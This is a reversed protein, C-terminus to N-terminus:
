RMMKELYKLKLPGRLAALARGIEEGPLTFVEGAVVAGWPAHFDGQSETYVFMMGAAPVHLCLEIRPYDDTQLQLPQYKGPLARATAVTDLFHMAASAPVKIEVVRPGVLGTSFTADGVLGGRAGRRLEYAAILPSHPNYGTWQHHILLLDARRVDLRDGLSPESM